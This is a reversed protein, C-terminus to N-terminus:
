YNYLNIRHTFKVSGHPAGILYSKQTNESSILTPIPPNLLNEEGIRIPRFLVFFLPLSPENAEQRVAQASVNTKEQGQM